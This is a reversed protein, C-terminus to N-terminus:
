EARGEVWGVTTFGREFGHGSLRRGVSERETQLFVIEQGRDLADAARRRVLAAGLGRRRFEPRVALNYLGSVGRASGERGHISTAAGAPKGAATALYHVVELGPRPRGFSDWLALAYGPALEDPEGTELDVAYVSEFTEVFSRMQEASRVVLLEIGPPIEVAPLSAPDLLYWAHRFRPAFGRARLRRELGRPESWPGTAIAAPLGRARCLERIEALRPSLDAPALAVLAAHNWEPDPIGEAGFLSVGSLDWRERLYVASQLLYHAREARRLAEEGRRAGSRVAPPRSSM